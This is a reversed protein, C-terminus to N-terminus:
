RGENGGEGWNSGAIPVVTVGIEITYKGSHNTLRVL